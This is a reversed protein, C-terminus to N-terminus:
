KKSYFDTVDFYLTKLEGQPTKFIMKDLVKGKGKLVSQREFHWGPRNNKIWYLEGRIGAYKSPAKIIVAEEITSGDGGSYTVGEIPANIPILDKDPAAAAPVTKPQKSECGAILLVVILILVKKM